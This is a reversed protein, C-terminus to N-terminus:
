DEVPRVQLVDPNVHRHLGHDLMRRLAPSLLGVCCGPAPPADYVGPTRSGFAARDAPSWCVFRGAPLKSPAKLSRSSSDARRPRRPIPYRRGVPRQPLSTALPGAWLCISAVLSRRAATLTDWILLGRFSPIDQRCAGVHSSNNHIVRGAPAAFIGGRRLSRTASLLPGDVSARPARRSPGVQLVVLYCSAAFTLM